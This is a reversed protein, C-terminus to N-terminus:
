LDSPKGIETCTAPTVGSGTTVQDSSPAALPKIWDLPPSASNMATATSSVGVSTPGTMLAAGARRGRADTKVDLRLGIGLGKEVDGLLGRIRDFIRGLVGSLGGFVEVLGGGCAGFVGQHLGLLVHAGIGHGDYEADERETEGETAREPQCMVALFGRNTLPEAPLM